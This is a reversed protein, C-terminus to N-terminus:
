EDNITVRNVDQSLNNLALKDLGYYTNDARYHDFEIKFSFRDSDIAAMASLSSDRVTGIDDSPRGYVLRGAMVAVALVVALIAAGICIRNMKPSRIM